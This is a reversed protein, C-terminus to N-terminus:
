TYEWAAPDTMNSTLADFGLCDGPPTVGPIVGYVAWPGGVTTNCALLGNKWALFGFQEGQDLTWGDTISGNPMAASHAITYSMAGCQPDIYVQQGGPTIAGMFLDGNGGEFNTIQTNPCLGETEMAQPCYHASTGGIQLRLGAAEIPQLHIPSASRAAIVGFYQAKASTILSTMAALAAAAKMTTVNTEITTSLPPSYCDILTFFPLRNRSPSLVFLAFLIINRIALVSAAGARKLGNVRGSSRVARRGYAFTVAGQTKHRTLVVIRRLWAPRHCHYSVSM